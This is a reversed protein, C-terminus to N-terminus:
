LLGSMRGNTSPGRSAMGSAEGLMTLASCSPSLMIDYPAPQLTRPSLRLRSDLTALLLLLLLVKSCCQPTRCWQICGSLIQTQLALEIRQQMPHAMTSCILLPAGGSLLSALWIKSWLVQARNCLHCAAALSLDTSIGQWACSNYMDALVELLSFHLGTFLGATM